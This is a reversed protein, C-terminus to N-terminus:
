RQPWSTTRLMALSGSGVRHAWPPRTPSVPFPVRFAAALMGLVRGVCAIQPARVLVCDCPDRRFFANGSTCGCLGVGGVATIMHGSLGMFAFSYKSSSRNRAALFKGGMTHAYVYSAGPYVVADAALMTVLSLRLWLLQFGLCTRVSIATHVITLYQRANCVLSYVAWTVFDLISFLMCKM